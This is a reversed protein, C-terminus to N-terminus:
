GPATATPTRCCCPSSRAVTAPSSTARVSPSRWFIIAASVISLTRGAYWGLGYRVGGAMTLTADALSALLAIALWLTLLDRLRTMWVCNILAVISAGIILYMVPSHRLAQYSLGSILPPLGRNHDICIYVLFVAIAPGGPILASGIRRALHGAEETRGTDHMALGILIFIPFGSHWMAWMWISSQAGGSFLGAPAFVGPFVLMQSFIMTAVFGFAGALAGLLPERSARFQVAFFYATLADMVSM